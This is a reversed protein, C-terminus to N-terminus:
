RNLQQNRLQFGDTQLVKRDKATMGEREIQSSQREMEAAKELLAADNIRKGVERLRLTAGQLERIAERTKGEDSLAVAREQSLANLNLQYDREVAINVSKKVRETDGSFTAKAPSTLSGTDGTFPNEYSVRASAIETVQGETGEPVEVEVLAFKKQGGYLQHMSLEVHEAKIRGERGIIRVPRVGKPCEIIIRVKKAAVSLVDGLESSFIRPINAGSEVFYSNGDSNQALRTMLDENYDMGVGVTTVTIDEKLLARGLRGLDDPSSPGVNAIGDSLLIIRHVFKGSLNKRVEAASQSVGAFLGTSGRSRIGRIRREISETNSASQAPVITEVEHDFIVVSFIDKPGLRRLAQVAAEIAKELKVGAMSGSRDLVLSLNVSTRKTAEVPAADLTVKLVVKQPGGTPLVDRDTEIRCTVPMDRAAAVATSVLVTTTILILAVRMFARFRVTERM